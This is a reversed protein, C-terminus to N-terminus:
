CWFEEGDPWRRALGEKILMDGVDQGDIRITALRRKNSTSDLGFREITWANNNLLELLRASARKALAVEAAGGCIASQPEPTDFDKLRINEGNLWLTDGDVVCTKDSTNRRSGCMTLPRSGSGHLQLVVRPMETQQAQSFAVWGLSAVAFALAACLTTLHDARKPQKV